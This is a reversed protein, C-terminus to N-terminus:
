NANLLKTAKSPSQYLGASTMLPCIAENKRKKMRRNKCDEKKEVLFLLLVLFPLLFSDTHLFDNVSGAQM